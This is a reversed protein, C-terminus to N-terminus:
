SLILFASSALAAVGAVYVGQVLVTVVGAGTAAASSCVSLRILSVAGIVAGRELVELRLL